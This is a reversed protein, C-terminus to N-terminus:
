EYTKIELVEHIAVRLKEDKPFDEIKLTAWVRGACNPTSEVYYNGLYRVLDFLCTGADLRGLPMGARHSDEKIWEHLEKKWKDVVGLFEEEDHQIHVLPSVFGDKDILRFWM